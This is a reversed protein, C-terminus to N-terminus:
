FHITGNGFNCYFKHVNQNNLTAKTAKDPVHVIILYIMFVWFALIFNSFIIGCVLFWIWVSGKRLNIASLFLSGLCILSNNGYKKLPFPKQFIKASNTLNCKTSNLSNKIALCYKSRNKDEFSTPYQIVPYAHINPTEDLKTDLYQSPQLKQLM